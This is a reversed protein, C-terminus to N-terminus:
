PRPRPTARHWPLRDFPGRVPLDAILAVLDRFDRSVMAQGVRQKFESVTLRGEIFSEQLIRIIRDEDAVSAAM